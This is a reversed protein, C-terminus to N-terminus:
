SHIRVPNMVYLRCLSSFSPKSLEGTADTLMLWFDLNRLSSLFPLGVILRTAGLLGRKDAESWRCVSRPLLRDLLRAAFLAEKVKSLEFPNSRLYSTRFESTSM